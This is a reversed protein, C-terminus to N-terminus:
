RHCGRGPHRCGGDEGGCRATQQLTQKMREVLDFFLGCEQDSLGQRLESEVARLEAEVRRRQEMAKETLLLKKLRADYAVPERRILGRRELLHLIGSATSRRIHFEAELDRQFVDREPHEGLYGIVWRQVGTLPEEDHPLRHALSRMILNSLSKVEFSIMRNESM